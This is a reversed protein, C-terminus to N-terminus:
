EASNGVDGVVLNDNGQHPAYETELHSIRELRRRAFTLYASHGMSVLAPRFKYRASPREEQHAGDGVDGERRGRKRLVPNISKRLVEVTRIDIFEHPAQRLRQATRQTQEICPSFTCLMGGPRLIHLVNSIALWPSPVDLFVADVYYQPLGFGLKPEESGGKEFKDVGDGVDEKLEEQCSLGQIVSEDTELATSCVDRWNCRVLAAPLGNRRFEQLAELCRRRHFDFTYIVGDPAVTRALSHTLSGSGTGAEAVRCGPRLRLNFVIMAIDTDYIIQTRHPVALTWLDACNQLVLMTPPDRTDDKINSRGTVRTGLPRGIIDDHMFKGDKCHFMEGRQLLLPTFHLHGRFLLVVDGEKAIAGRPALM